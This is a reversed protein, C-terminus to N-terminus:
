LMHALCTEVSGILCRAQENNEVDCVRRQAVIRILAALYVIDEHPYKINQHQRNEMRVVASKLRALRGVCLDSATEYDYNVNLVDTLLRMCVQVAQTFYSIPFLRNLQSSCREANGGIRRENGLMVVNFILCPGLVLVIKKAKM